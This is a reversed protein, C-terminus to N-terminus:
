RADAIVVKRGDFAIRRAGVTVKADLGTGQVDVKVAPAAAPEAASAARGLRYRRQSERSRRSRTKRTMTKRKERAFKELWNM